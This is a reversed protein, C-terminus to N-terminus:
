AVYAIGAVCLVMLSIREHADVGGAESTNMVSAVGCGSMDVVTM